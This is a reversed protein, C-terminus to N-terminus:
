RSREIRRLVIDSGPYSKTAKIRGDKNQLDYSSGPTGYGPFSYLHQNYPMPADTWAFAPWWDEFGHAYEISNDQGFPIYLDVLSTSMPATFLPLSSMSMVLSKASFLQCFDDHLNSSVVKARPVEKSIMELCPNNKEQSTLLNVNCTDKGQCADNIARSYWSCPPQVHRATNKFEGDDTWVDGSRMHVVVTSALSDKLGSDCPSQYKLMVDRLAQAMLPFKTKDPKYGFHKDSTKTCESTPKCDARMSYVGDSLSFADKTTMALMNEFRFSCAKETVITDYLGVWIQGLQNGLRGGSNTFCVVKSNIDANRATESDSVVEVNSVKILATGHVPVEVAHPRPADSHWVGHKYAFNMNEQATGCRSLIHIAKLKPNAFDFDDAFKCQHIGENGDPNWAKYRISSAQDYLLSADSEPVGCYTVLQCTKPDGRIAFDLVKQDFVPCKHPPIWRPSMSCWNMVLSFTRKVAPTPRAIYFGMNLEMDGSSAIQFDGDYGDEMELPNRTWFVDMESFLVRFGANVLVATPELKGRMIAERQPYEPWGNNPLGLKEANLLVVPVNRSLAWEYTFNDLAVMAMQVKAYDRCKLYFDEFRDKWLQDSITLAVTTYNGIAPTHETAKKIEDVWGHLMKHWRENGGHDSYHEAWYEDLPKSRLSSKKRADRSNATSRLYSHFQSHSVDLVPAAPKELTKGAFGVADAVSVVNVLILHVLFHLAGGMAKL